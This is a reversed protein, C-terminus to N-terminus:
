IEQQRANDGISKTLAMKTKVTVKKLDIKSRNLWFENGFTKKADSEHHVLFDLIPKLVKGIGRICKKSKLKGWNTKPGM